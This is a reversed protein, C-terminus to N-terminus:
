RREPGGGPNGRAEGRAPLSRPREPGPPRARRRDLIGFSIPRPARVRVRSWYLGLILNLPRRKRKALPGQREGASALVGSEKARTELRTPPPASSFIPGSTWSARGTRKFMTQLIPLIAFIGYSKGWGKM